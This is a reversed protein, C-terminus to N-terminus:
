GVAKSTPRVSTTVKALMDGDSDPSGGMGKGRLAKYVSWAVAIIPVALIAGMIGAVVTGTAVSLAIVVPHLKVQRGMVFPNLIHGEIQGILAVGLLVLLAPIPGRTALAVIGAIAMAAPGGIMEIFSGIFVLVALPAALPIRLAFLLIAALIGDILGIIVLGRAYGAFTSFGASFAKTWHVRTKEPFQNLIWQWMERGSSLFFATLFVSLALYIIWEILAGAHGIIDTYHEGIWHQAANLADHVDAFPLHLRLPPGQLLDFLREVGHIFENGLSAWSGAVSIIVFALLAAVILLGTILTLAVALGRKMHRDYINRLPRLACTLVLAIFLSIIVMRVHSIAWVVLGVAAAVLLLRWSYGAATKLWQPVGQDHKKEVDLETTIDVSEAEWGPLQPSFPGDDVSVYSRLPGFNYQHSAQSKELQNQYASRVQSIRTRWAGPKDTPNTETLLPEDNTGM